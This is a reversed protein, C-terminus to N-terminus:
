RSIILKIKKTTEGDSCTVFYNGNPLESTNLKIDNEGQSLNGNYVESVKQGLLNQIEVKVKSEKTLKISLTSLSTNSPNPYIDVTSSNGKNENVGAAIDALAQNIAAEIGSQSIASNNQNYYVTHNPGGLVVVKPMGASGYDSMKVVSNSFIANCSSMGNTNAWSSMTSCSTTGYDDALYFYAQGPHNQAATYGALAGSICSSCPMVWAIVIVKGSNLETFLDHNTSSCDNCNFNTATTQANAFTFSLAALCIFLKRKMHNM